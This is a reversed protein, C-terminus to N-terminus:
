GGIIVDSIISLYATPHGLVPSRPSGIASGIVVGMDGDLYTVLVARPSDRGLSIVAEYLQTRINALSVVNIEFIFARLACLASQADM